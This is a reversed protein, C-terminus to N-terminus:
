LKKCNIYKTVIRLRCENTWVKEGNGPSIYIFTESKRRNELIGIWVKVISHYFVNNQILMRGKVIVLDLVYWNYELIIIQNLYM